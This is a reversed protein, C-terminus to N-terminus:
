GGSAEGETHINPNSWWLDQARNVDYNFRLQIHM